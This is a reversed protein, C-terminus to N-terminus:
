GLVEHIATLEDIDYKNMRIRIECAKDWLDEDTLDPYNEKIYEFTCMLKYATVVDAIGTVSLKIADGKDECITGDKNIEVSLSSTDAKIYRGIEKIM